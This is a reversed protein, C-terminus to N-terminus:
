QAEPDLTVQVVAAGTSYLFIGGCSNAEVLYEGIGVTKYHAPSTSEDVGDPDTRRAVRVAAVSEVYLGFTQVTHDWTVLLSQNATLTTRLEGSSGVAEAM